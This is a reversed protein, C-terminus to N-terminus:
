KCTSFYFCSLVISTHKTTHKSRKHKTALARKTWVSGVEMLPMWHANDRANKIVETKEVHRSSGFIAHMHLKNPVKKDIRPTRSCFCMAHMEIWNGNCSQREIFNLIRSNRIQNTLYIHEISFSTIKGRRYVNFSTLNKSSGRFGTSKLVQNNATM